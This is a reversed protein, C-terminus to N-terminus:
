CGFSLLGAVRWCCRSLRAFCLAAVRTAALPGPMCGIAGGRAGIVQWGIGVHWRGDMLCALVVHKVRLQLPRWRAPVRCGCPNSAAVFLRSRTVFQVLSRGKDGQQARSVVQRRNAPQICSEYGPVRRERPGQEPEPSECSRSECWLWVRRRWHMSRPMLGRM